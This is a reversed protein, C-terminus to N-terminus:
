KDSAKAEKAEDEKKAEIPKVTQLMKILQKVDQHPLNSKNLYQIVAEVVRIDIEGKKESLDSMAMSSCFFGSALVICTGILKKM